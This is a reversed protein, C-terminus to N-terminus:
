EVPFVVRFGVDGTCYDPFGYIRFAARCSPANSYWSGGRLIVFPGPVPSVPDVSEEPMGEDSWPNYFDQCWESVNGHMDYLGWANPKKTGVDSAREGECNGEYICYEALVSSDDGFYYATTSGARCAFEWQAETPLTGGVWEAFAQAGYWSVCSVPANDMNDTPVWKARDYNFYVGCTDAEMVYVYTIATDGEGITWSQGPKYKTENLFHAYQANTIEYKSMYFDKTFTVKHQKEDDYRGPETEPSGMMFSQGAAKILVKEIVFEEKVTITCSGKVTGASATITASGAAIGTVVNDEISVVSQGAEDVTITYQVDAAEAPTINVSLTTSEGVIIESKEPIIRIGTVDVTSDSSECAIGLVAVALLLTKFINLHKM